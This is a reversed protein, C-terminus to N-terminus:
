GSLPGEFYKKVRRPHQLQKLGVAAICLNEFSPNSQM